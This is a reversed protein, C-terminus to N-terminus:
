EGQGKQRNGRRRRVKLLRRLVTGDGPVNVPCEWSMVVEFVSSSISLVGEILDALHSVCVRLLQKFSNIQSTVVPRYAALRDCYHILVTCFAVSSYFMKYLLQLFM